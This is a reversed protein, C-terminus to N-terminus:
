LRSEKKFESMMRDVDEKTILVVNGLRTATLRGSAIWRAITKRHRGLM